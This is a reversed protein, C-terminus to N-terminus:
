LKGTEGVEMDGVMSHVVVMQVRLVFLSLPSDFELPLSVFMASFM